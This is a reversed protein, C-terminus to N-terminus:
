YSMRTEVNTFKELKCKVTYYILTGLVLMFIKLCSEDHYQLILYQKWPRVILYLKLEVWVIITRGIPSMFHFVNSVCEFTRLALRFVTNKYLFFIQEHLQSLSMGSSIIFVNVSWKQLRLVSCSPSCKKLRYIFCGHNTSRETRHFRINFHVFVFNLSRFIRWRLDQVYIL